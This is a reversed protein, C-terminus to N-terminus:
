DKLLRIYEEKTDVDVGLNEDEINVYSVRTEYKDILVRGGKDGSLKLLEEKFEAPFIVPNGRKRNYLPVIISNGNKEFAQIVKSILEKNLNIQDGVFFMYGNCCSSNKIGIKISESMGNEANLNEICLIPKEGVVKKVFENRYILIIENFNVKLIEDVINELISKGKIPLILKDCGMRKSFGSALIIANIKYKMTREM